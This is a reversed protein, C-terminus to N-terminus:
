NSTHWSCIHWSGDKYKNFYVSHFRPQDSSLSVTKRLVLAGAFDTSIWLRSFVTKRNHELEFIKSKVPGFLADYLDNYSAGDILPAGFDIASKTVDENVGKLIDDVIGSIEIAEPPRVIDGMDQSFIPGIPLISMLILPLYRSPLM